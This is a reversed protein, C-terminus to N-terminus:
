TCKVISALMMMVVLNSLTPGSPVTVDFTKIDAMSAVSATDSLVAAAAMLSEKLRAMSM